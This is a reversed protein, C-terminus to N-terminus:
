PGSAPFPVPSHGHEEVFDEDPPLHTAARPYASYLGVHGSLFFPLVIVSAVTTPTAPLSGSERLLMGAVARAGSRSNVTVRRDNRGGICQLAYEGASTNMAGSIGRAAEEPTWMSHRDRSEYTAGGTSRYALGRHDRLMEDYPRAPSSAALHADAHPRAADDLDDDTGIEVMRRRLLYTSERLWTMAHQPEFLRRRVLTYIRRMEM